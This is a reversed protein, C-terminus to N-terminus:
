PIDTSLKGAHTDTRRFEIWYHDALLPAYRGFCHELGTLAALLRPRREVIGYVDSPPLFLGLGSVHVREFHPAFDRTLRRPTPYHIPIPEAADDPQFAAEGHWRRTVTAFDGHLAHWGFEWLCFPSLMGFAAISGPGMQRALWLALPRWDPLCNLPGFNAFVGDFGCGRRAELHPAQLDLRAVTVLPEPATKARAIDLMAQSADTACVHIGRRALRLADEGTGCGLELVRSGATFHLDLREHVRDRLWRAIASETFDADYTPALSDFATMVVLGSRFSIQVAFFAFIAFFVSTNFESKM